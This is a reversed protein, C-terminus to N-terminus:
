SMEQICKRYEKIMDFAQDIEKDIDLVEREMDEIEKKTEKLKKFLEKLPQGELNDQTNEGEEILQYLSEIDVCLREEILREVEKVKEKAEQLKKYQSVLKMRKIWFSEELESIERQFDKM